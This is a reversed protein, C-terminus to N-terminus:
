SSKCPSEPHGRPEVVCRAPPPKGAGPGACGSLKEAALAGAPDRKMVDMRHGEAAVGVPLRDQNAGSVMWRKFCERPANM